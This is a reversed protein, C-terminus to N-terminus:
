NMSVCCCCVCEGLSSPNKADWIWYIILIYLWLFSIVKLVEAAEKEMIDMEHDKLKVEELMKNAEAYCASTYEQTEKKKKNLQAKM